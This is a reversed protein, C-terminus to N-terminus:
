CRARSCAWRRETTWGTNSRSRPRRRRSAYDDPPKELTILDRGPQNAGVWYWTKGKPVNDQGVNLMEDREKVQGQPGYLM